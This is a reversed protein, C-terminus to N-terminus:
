PNLKIIEIMKKHLPHKPNTRILLFTNLDILEQNTLSQKATLVEPFTDLLKAAHVLKTKNLGRVGSEILSFAGSSKYGLPIALDTQTMGKLERFLKIRSGVRKNYDETAKSPQFTAM